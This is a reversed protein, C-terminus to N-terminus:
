NFLAKKEAAVKLLEEMFPSKAFDTPSLTMLAAVRDYDFFGFADPNNQLKLSQSHGHEDKGEVKVNETEPSEILEHLDGLIAGSDTNGPFKFTQVIRKALRSMPSFITEKYAMTTCSVTVSQVSKLKRVMDEFAEPRILISWKLTGAHASKIERERKATLKAGEADRLSQIKSQKLGEYYQRFLTGFTNLACSNHYHQYLGRGSGKGILFYNFDALNAGEALDKAELKADGADNHFELFKRQDKTTILLGGYYDGLDAVYLFRGYKHLKIPKGKNAQAYTFLEDLTIGKGLEFELGLLKIDM